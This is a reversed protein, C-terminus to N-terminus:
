SVRGAGGNNLMPTTFADFVTETGLTGNGDPAANGTKTMVQSSGQALAPDAALGVILILALGFSSARAVYVSQKLPM